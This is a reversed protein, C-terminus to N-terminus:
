LSRPTVGVSPLPTLPTRRPLQQRPLRSRARRLFRRLAQGFLEDFRLTRDCDKAILDPLRSCLGFSHREGFHDAPGFVKWLSKVSLTASAHGNPTSGTQALTETTTM